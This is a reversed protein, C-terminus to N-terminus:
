AEDIWTDTVQTYDTPHALRNKMRKTDLDLSAFFMPVGIGGDDAQIDEMKSVLTLREELDPTANVDALLQLFEENVWRTENWNGSEENPPIAEKTYALLQVMANLPRHAWSTVGFHYHNWRPWYETAPRQDLEINIGAQKAARQFVEAEVPEYRTDNKYTAKIPKNGWKQWAPSGALLAKAKEIDQPPIPKEVYDPDAPGFHADHGMDVLGFYATNAMEERPQVLKFANRVDKDTFPEMDIRMRFLGTEISKAVKMELNPDEKLTQYQEPGLNYITDIQGSQIASVYPALESGLDTWVIEDLFPLSKGDPAKQWYNPNRVARAGGGVKFEEVIFPGTGVTKAALSEGKKLDPPEYGQQLIQAPYHYLFEPIQITPKKLHLKITHEDVKEIDNKTFFPQLLGLTSSGVKPDFWSQFNWLVDDSTLPKGDTWKIGKRLFLTWESAIDNPEWRELLYPHTVNQADTISLYENAQRLVNSSAVWSLRHPHDVEIIESGIRYTGGRKAKSLDAKGTDTKKAGGEPAEDGGGCAALFTGAATASMGLLSAFRVFQRRDMKSTVYQDKVHELMPNGKPDPRPPELYTV